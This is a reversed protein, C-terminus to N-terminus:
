GAITIKSFSDREMDTLEVAIQLTLGPISPFHQQLVSLIRQSLDRKIEVSRGSLLALTAYVFARQGSATGIAFDDIGFARSKIDIELFQGSEALVRNCDVLVANIDFAPLNRTYELTLNPM